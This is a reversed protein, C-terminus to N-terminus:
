KNHEKRNARIRELNARIRELELAFVIDKIYKKQIICLKNYNYMGAKKMKDVYKKNINYNYYGNGNGVSFCTTNDYIYYHTYNGSVDESYLVSKLSNLLVMEDYEIKIVNYFAKLIFSESVKQIEQHNKDVYEM